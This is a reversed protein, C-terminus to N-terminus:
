SGLKVGPMKKAEKLGKPRKEKSVLLPLLRGVHPPVLSGGM